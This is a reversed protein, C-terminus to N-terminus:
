EDSEEVPIFEVRFTKPWYKGTLYFTESARDYAIGNLVEDGGAPLGLRQRLPTADIVAVVDGSQPDIRLIWDTQWVNAYLWGEACELENVAAVPSGDLTVEIHSILAFTAPDRLQIRATGDTMFLTRGDHCLGWGEGTYRWEDVPEFTALDWLLARGERYTLQILQDGVRALGEGFLGDDLQLQREPKGTSHDVRRLTSEGYGGTSEFLMGDHWLLGQTFADPHHPFEELIEIRLRQPTASEQAALAAPGHLLLSVSLVGLALLSADTPRRSM